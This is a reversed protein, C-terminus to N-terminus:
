KVKGVRVANIALAALYPQVPAVPSTGGAGTSAAGLPVASIQDGLVVGQPISTSDGLVEPEPEEDEEPEDRNVRTGGGGGGSQRDVEVSCQVTEETEEEGVFRSAILTFTTDTDITTEASGDVAVDGLNTISVNSANTTEWTLTFEEGSSVSDESTTLSCTLDDNGEEPERENVFTCNLEPATDLVKVLRTTLQEDIIERNFFRCANNGQVDIAEGFDASHNVYVWGEQEVEYVYWPGFEPDVQTTVCGDEGTTVIFSGGESDSDNTVEFEWGEVGAEQTDLKCVTLDVTSTEPEAVKCLSVGDLFTGRSNPTGEDTFSVVINETDAEFVLYDATWDTDSGGNASNTTNVNGDGLAVEVNLENDSEGTDPRASFLWSLKYTAGEEVAVKQSIELSAPEDQISGAPGDFDSDLEAYQEGEEVGWGFVSGKHIELEPDPASEGGNIWEVNWNTESEDFIDWGAADTVNPDEFGGNDILNPTEILCEPEDLVVQASALSAPFASTLLALTALIVLTNKATQEVIKYNM